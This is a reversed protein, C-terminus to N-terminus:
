PRCLASKTYREALTLDYGSTADHYWGVAWSDNTTCSGAGPQVAVGHFYNHSTGQVATTVQNWSTGNWKIALSQFPPRNYTGVSWVLSPNYYAVASLSNDGAAAPNPTTQQTWTAGNWHLILTQYYFPSSNLYAGAANCNTSTLCSVGQLVNQVTGPSPTSVQRWLATPALSYHLSLTSGDSNGVAWVDYASVCAVGYLYNNTSGPPVPTSVPNWAIGNWHMTLTRYPTLSGADYYSGVAWGDTASNFCVSRLQNFGSGPSSSSQQTWGSGNNFEILTTGASTPQPDFANIGAKAGNSEYGVAWVHTSNVNAVGFLESNLATSTPSSISWVTGNWNEALPANGNADLTSGM